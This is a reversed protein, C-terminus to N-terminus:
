SWQVDRRTHYEVEKQQYYETCGDSEMQGCQFDVAVADIMMARGCSWVIESAHGHAILVYM